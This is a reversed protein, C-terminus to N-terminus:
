AMRLGLCYATERGPSRTSTSVKSTCGRGPAATGAASRMEVFPIFLTVWRTSSNLAKGLLDPDPTPYLLTSLHYVFFSYHAQVDLVRLCVPERLGDGPFGTFGERACNRFVQTFAVLPKM